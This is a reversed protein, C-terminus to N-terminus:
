TSWYYTLYTWSLIKYKTNLCKSHIKMWWQICTCAASGKVAGHPVSAHIGDLYQQLYNPRWVYTSLKRNQRRATKVGLWGSPRAREGFLAPAFWGRVSGWGPARPYFSGMVACFLGYPLLLPTHMYTHLVSLPGMSIFNCVYGMAWHRSFHDGSIQPSNKRKRRPPPKSLSAGASGGFTYLPKTRPQPRLITLVNLTLTM